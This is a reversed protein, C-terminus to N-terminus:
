GYEIQLSRDDRYITYTYAHTALHDRTNNNNNEKPKFRKDNWKGPLSLLTDVYVKVQTNTHRFFTVTSKIM